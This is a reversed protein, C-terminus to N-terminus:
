FLFRTECDEAALLVVERLPDALTSLLWDDLHSSAPHWSIPCGSSHRFAPRGYARPLFRWTLILRMDLFLSSWFSTSTIASQRGGAGAFTATPIMKQRLSTTATPFSPLSIESILLASISWLNTSLLWCKSKRNGQLFQESAWVNPVAFHINYTYQVGASVESHSCLNVSLTSDM